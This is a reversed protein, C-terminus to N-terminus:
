PEDKSEKKNDRHSYRFGVMTLIYAVLFAITNSFTSSVIREMNVLDPYYRHILFLALSWPILFVITKVALTKYTVNVLTFRV